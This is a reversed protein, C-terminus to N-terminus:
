RAKREKAAEGWEVLGWMTELEPDGAVIRKLKQQSAPYMGSQEGRAVRYLTERNIGSKAALQLLSCGRRKVIEDLLRRPTIEDLTSSNEQVVELFDRKPGVGSHFGITGTVRTKLLRTVQTFLTSRSLPDLHTM